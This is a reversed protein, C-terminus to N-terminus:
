ALLPRGVPAVIAVLVNRSYVSYVVFFLTSPERSLVHCLSPALVREREACLLTRQQKASTLNVRVRHSSLGYVYFMFLRHILDSGEGRLAM